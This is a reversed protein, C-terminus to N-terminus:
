ESGEELFGFERMEESTLLDLNKDGIKLKPASLKRSHDPVLYDFEIDWNGTLYSSGGSNHKTAQSLYDIALDQRFAEGKQYYSDYNVPDTLYSEAKAIVEEKSDASWELRTSLKFHGSKQARIVFDDDTNNIEVIIRHKKGYFASISDNENIVRTLVDQRKELLHQGLAQTDTDNACLLYESLVKVNM